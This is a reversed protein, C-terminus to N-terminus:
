KTDFWIQKYIHSLKINAQKKGMFEAQIDSTEKCMSFVIYSWMTAHNVKQTFGTQNNLM